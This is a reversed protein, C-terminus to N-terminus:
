PQFQRLRRRREKYDPLIKEVERWFEPSHNMQKLHALEHVVVYDLEEEGVLILKWNFNLNGRASCSGWRTKQDKIFIHNYSVGMIDGYYAARARLVEGAQKRLKAADEESVPIHLSTEQQKELTKEIWSGHASVFERIKDEGLTRPSRVLISGNRIEMLISRRDSRIIHYTYVKDKYHLEYLKEM